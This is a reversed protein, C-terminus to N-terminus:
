LFSPVKEWLKRKGSYRVLLSLRAKLRWPTRQLDFLDYPLVSAAKGLSKVEVEYALEGLMLDRQFTKLRKENFRPLTRV